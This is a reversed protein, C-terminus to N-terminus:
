VHTAKRGTESGFRGLPWRRRIAAVPWYRSYPKETLLRESKDGSIKENALTSRCGHSTSRGGSYCDRLSRELRPATM